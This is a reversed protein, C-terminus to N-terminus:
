MAVCGSEIAMLVVMSAASSPRTENVGAWCSPFHNMQNLDIGEPGSDLAQWGRDVRLKICIREGSDLNSREELGPEAGGSAAFQLPAEGAPLM